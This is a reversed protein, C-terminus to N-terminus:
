EPIIAAVGQGALLRVAQKDFSAFVPPNSPSAMKRGTYANVGDAFDGGQRMMRLGAEVEDECSVVQRSGALHELQGIIADPALRYRGSLVWVLECWVHTPVYIRTCTNFLRCVANFQALNDRILFRVLLNTDAIINM